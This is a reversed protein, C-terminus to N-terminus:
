CRPLIRVVLFMSINYASTEHDLTHHIHHRLIQVLVTVDMRLHVNEIKDPFLEVQSTRRLHRVAGAHFAAAVVIGGPLRVPRKPRWVHEQRVQAADPITGPRRVDPRAGRVRKEFVVSRLSGRQGSARIAAVGGPVQQPPWGCDSTLRSLVRM